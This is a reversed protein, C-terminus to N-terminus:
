SAKTEKKTLRHINTPEYFSELENITTIGLHGNSFKSIYLERWLYLAFHYNWQINHLKNELFIVDWPNLDSLNSLNQENTEEFIKHRDRIGLWYVFSVFSNSDVITKKMDIIKWQNRIYTLLQKYIDGPLEVEKWDSFVLKLKEWKINPFFWVWKHIQIINDQEILINRIKCSIGDSFWQVENTYESIRLITEEEQIKESM